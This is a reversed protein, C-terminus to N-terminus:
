WAGSKTSVMLGYVFDVFEENLMEPGFLNVSLPVRMGEMRLAMALEGAREIVFTM